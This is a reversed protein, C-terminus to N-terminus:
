ESVPMFTPSQRELSSRAVQCDSPFGHSKQECSAFDRCDSLMGCCHKDTTVETCGREDKQCRAMVDQKTLTQDVAPLAYWCAALRECFEECVLNEPLVGGNDVHARTGPELAAPPRTASSSSCAVVVGLWASAFAVRELFRRKSLLGISPM